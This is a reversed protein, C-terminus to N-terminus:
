LSCPTLSFGASNTTSGAVNKIGLIAGATATILSSALNSTAAANVFNTNGNWTVGPDTQNLLVGVVNTLTPTTLGLGQSNFNLMGHFDKAFRILSQTGDGQVSTISDGSQVANATNVGNYVPIPNASNVVGAGGGALFTEDQSNFGEPTFFEVEYDVWIQGLNAGTGNGELAIFVNAVDYLDRDANPALPRCFYSSRKHLMERDFVVEFGAWPASSKTRQNGFLIIDSTPAIDKPNCDPSIAIMGPTDTPCRPIYQFKLRLYKYSEFCRAINSGWPSFNRDGPNVIFTKNIGFVNTGSSVNTLFERRSFRYRNMRNDTNTVRTMARPAYVISEQRVQSSGKRTNPRSKNKKKRNNSVVVTVRKTTKNANQM